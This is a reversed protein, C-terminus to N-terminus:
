SDIAFERSEINVHSNLNRKLNKKRYRSTDIPTASAQGRDSKRQGIGVRQQRCQLLTSHPGSLLVPTEGPGRQVGSSSKILALRRDDVAWLTWSVGSHALVSVLEGVGVDSGSDEGCGGSAANQWGAGETRMDQPILDDYHSNAKRRPLM